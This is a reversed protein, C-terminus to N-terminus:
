LVFGAHLQLTEFKPIPDDGAMKLQRRILELRSKAVMCPCIYGLSAQCSVNISYSQPSCKVKGRSPGNQIRRHYLIVHLTPFMPVTRSLTYRPLGRIADYHRRSVQQVVKCISRSSPNLYSAFQSGRCCPWGCSLSTLSCHTLWRKAVSRTRM